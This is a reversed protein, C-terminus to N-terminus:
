NTKMRQYIEHSIALTLGTVQSLDQGWFDENQLISNVLQHTNQNATEWKKWAVKFFAITSESDRLEITEAGRRGRYFCILAAFAAVLHKPLENNKQFFALLSPLVRTKYKAVSNLSIDILQHHIFPNKFRDLVDSAFKELQAQPFDLTPLIEKFLATEIFQGITKDEVAARVTEIGALYGVPVMTTHAGNLIRVKLQRYPALNNTFVVNLNTQDFPLEKQIDAPAQIVWIHYPEADVVLKDEFKLAAYVSEIRDKPFGPVIRDVLTNCFYNHQNIWYKFGGNLQWLDAYALICAKLQDGNQEILECPLHICGSTPRGQFHKWRHYLWATLKAPFEKPSTDTQIDNKNFKIGAETTNSITFRLTPSEATKLYAAWDQYPHIVEQVCKVLQTESILKGNKIGNTLVHFLGDQQRLATYDGKETPKVCIVGANFDTRENLVDIMWDTFARLFNGGGFQLIKAPRQAPLNTTKRNLQQM